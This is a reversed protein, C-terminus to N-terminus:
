GTACLSIFAFAHRKVAERMEEDMPLKRILHEVYDFPTIAGLDWRLRDLVITEWDQVCTM